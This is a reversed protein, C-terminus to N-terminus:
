DHRASRTPDDSELTTALRLRAKFLHAKVTGQAIGLSEAIERVSQDALYHLALVARQQPPLAAITAILAPDIPSPAADALDGPRRSREHALRENRQKKSVKMARQLVVRRVWARPSDYGGLRDWRRYAALMAEQVLDEAGAHRGQVATAFAVLDRFERRYFADFDAQDLTTIDEEEHATQVSSGTGGM